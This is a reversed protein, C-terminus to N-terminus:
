FVDEIPRELDNAVKVVVIFGGMVLGLCGGIVVQGLIVVIAIAAAVSSWLVFLYEIPMGSLEFM